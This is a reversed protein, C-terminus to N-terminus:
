EKWIFLKILQSGPHFLSLFCMLMIKINSRVVNKPGIVDQVSLSNTEPDDGYCWSEDGAIVKSLYHLDTEHHEKLFVVYFCPYTLVRPFFKTTVM